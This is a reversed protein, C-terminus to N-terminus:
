NPVPINFRARYRWNNKVQNKNRKFFSTKFFDSKKLFDSKESEHETQFILDEQLYLFGIKQFFRIERKRIFIPHFLFPLIAEFKVGWRQVVM